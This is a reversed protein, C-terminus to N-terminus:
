SKIGRFSRQKETLKKIDEDSKKCTATISCKGLKGYYHSDMEYLNTARDAFVLMKDSARIVSSGLFFCYWRLLSLFCCYRFDIISLTLLKMLLRGQFLYKKSPRFSLFGLEFIIKPNLDFIVEGDFLSKIANSFSRYSIIPFISNSSM